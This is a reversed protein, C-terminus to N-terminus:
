LTPIRNGVSAAAHDLLFSDETYCGDSVRKPQFHRYYVNYFQINDYVQKTIEIGDAIQKM